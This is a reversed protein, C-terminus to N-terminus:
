NLNTDPYYTFMDFLHLIKEIGETWSGFDVEQSEENFFFFFDNSQCLTSKFVSKFLNFCVHGLWKDRERSHFNELQLTLVLNMINHM